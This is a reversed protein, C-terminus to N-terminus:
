FRYGVGVLVRKLGILYPVPIDVGAAVRAVVHRGLLVDIGAATAVDITVVM